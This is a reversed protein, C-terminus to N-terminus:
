RSYVSLIIGTSINREIIRKVQITQLGDWIKAEREDKRNRNMIRIVVSTNSLTHLSWQMLVRYEYNYRVITFLRYEMKFRGQM